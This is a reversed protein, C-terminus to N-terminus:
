ARQPAQVRIVEAGLDALQRTAAPLAVAQEMALVRIGDLPGSMAVEESM